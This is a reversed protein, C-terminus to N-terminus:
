DFDYDRWEQTEKEDDLDIDMQYKLYDQAAHLSDFAIEAQKLLEKTYRETVTISILYAGDIDLIRINEMHNQNALSTFSENFKVLIPLEM